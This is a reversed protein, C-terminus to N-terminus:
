NDRSVYAKRCKKCTSTPLEKDKPKGIEILGDNVSEWQPHCLIGQETQIHVVPNIIRREDFPIPYVLKM